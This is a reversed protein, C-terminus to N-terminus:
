LMESQKLDIIKNQAIRINKHVTEDSQITNTSEILVGEADCNEFTNGEVFADSVPGSEYWDKADCSFYICAMHINEFRNHLIRIKGGTSALIGRTPVSVFTNNEITVDAMRSRNEVAIEGLGEFLPPPVDLTLTIHTLDDSTPGIAEIVRATGIAVLTECPYFAIEDGAFFSAYGLAQPHRYVLTVINGEVKEVILFVGHVNIPDDHPNSFISDHIHINGRCNCFHLMDAASASFRDPAATQWRVYSFSLNECCQAIMGMGYSYCIRLNSFTINRSAEMFFGCADRRTDRMQFVDGQSIDRAENYRLLLRSDSLQQIEACQWFLDKKTRTVKGNARRHQSLGLGDRGTWYPLNTYPSKESEWIIHNAEPHCDYVDPFSVVAANETERWEDVTVDIVSPCAYDITLNKL